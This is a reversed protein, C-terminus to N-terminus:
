VWTRQLAGVGQIRDEALRDAAQYTPLGEAESLEFLRLLTTYIEGAKRMSREPTWQNLEGCVNILGGANIVYDPAYLIGRRHLEDGHREEALVNNAAGAVVQVKLVKLTDDNITAGLASPAYVDAEVAYIEDPGVATAGFDHVVKQVRAADIDTVVLRAGEGALNQCLYYGVHGVGQVTITRGSLDDSGFRHKAAAKIGRYVGYATVPSPDGSAAARGTVHETEMAVFEMDDVSTGVDEATIYRGKLTEVARGHARFIAERDTARNDGIIVSKGGGLNLGAVAAKYTMGRSLRLADIFAERDNNYQWFRTGGLAPGLVTNHIAIIGRYGCSPENWFVVQEHGHENILEFFEM